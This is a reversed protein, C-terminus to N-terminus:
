NCDILVTKSAGWAHKIKFLLTDGSKCNGDELEVKGFCSEGPKLKVEADLCATEKSNGNWSDFSKPTDNIYIALNILGLPIAYKNLPDARIEFCITNNLCESINQIDFQQQYSEMRSLQLPKFTPKEEIYNYYIQQGLLILEICILFFLIIVITPLIYKKLKEM